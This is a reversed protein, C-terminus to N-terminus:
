YICVINKKKTKTIESLITNELEMWKGAFNIIDENKNTSYYKMTYIFLLKQVLKESSPCRLQEWSRAIVFLVAIFM